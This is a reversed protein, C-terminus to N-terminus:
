RCSGRPSQLLVPGSLSLFFLFFFFSVLLLLLYFCDLEAHSSVWDILDLWSPMTASAEGTAPTSQDILISGVSCCESRMLSSGSQETGPLSRAPSGSGPKCTPEWKGNLELNVSELNRPGRHSPPQGQGHSHLCMMKLQRATLAL